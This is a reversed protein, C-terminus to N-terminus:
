AILTGIDSYQMKGAFLTKQEAFCGKRRASTAWVLGSTRLLQAALDLRAVWL